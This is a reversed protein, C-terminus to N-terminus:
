YFKVLTIVYFQLLLVPWYLAKFLLGNQYEFFTSSIGLTKRFSNIPVVLISLYVVFFFYELYFIEGIAITSRISLHSFVVVFFMSVCIGFLEGVSIEAALLVVSFLVISVVILPTLNSIFADIFVRKLGINFHLDPFHHKDVDLYTGLTANKNPNKLSFYTEMVEWGQLALDSNLGPKDTPSKDVYSNIDPLLHITKDTSIPVITLAVHELELPYRSQEINVHVVTEFRFLQHVQQKANKTNQVLTLESSISQAFQLTNATIQLDKDDQYNLWLYGTVSLHDSTSLSLTELQLGTYIYHPRAAQPKGNAEFHEVVANVAGLNAIKNGHLAGSGPYDLSINWLLGIAVFILLSSTASLTALNIRIDEFRTLLLALLFLLFLLGVTTLVFLQQRLKNSDM